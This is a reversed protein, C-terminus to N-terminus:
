LDHQLLEIIDIYRETLNIEHEKLHRKLSEGVTEIFNEDKGHIKFSSLIRLISKFVNKSLNENELLKKLEKLHIEFEVFKEVALPNNQLSISIIQLAKENGNGFFDRLIGFNKSELIALGFEIAAAEEELFEWSGLDDSLTKLASELKTKMEVSLRSQIRNKTINKYEPAGPNAEEKQVNVGEEMKAQKSFILSDSVKKDRNMKAFREGTQMDIRIACGKPLVFGDPILQYEETLQFGSQKYVFIAFLVVVIGTVISSVLFHRSGM